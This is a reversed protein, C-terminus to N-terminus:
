KEETNKGISFYDLGLRLVESTSFLNRADFVVPVKLLSKIKSLNPFKFEGWETMVVLGHADKLTEYKEHCVNIKSVFGPKISTMLSMFNKSGEPDYVNIKAGEELLLSAMVITSSERVDDTNAKFSLGWFSFTKGELSGKFYDKLKYFMVKKQRENVRETAKILELDLDNERGTEILARVDKPFCSGGYGPGPYLFHGGIRIDSAMGDRVEEVDAGTMDCLRSIENIFSIKTALFCNSAYKSMEASLNSMKLYKSSSKLLPSFLEKLTEEAFSDELGVIVRDPELFDKVANGERLFEPNNVVAFTKDTVESLVNKVKRHTGVPVTSKIVVIAGERMKKGVSRSAELLYNLNASGDGQSPTGVALFIIKAKEVPDYTSSFNLKKLDRNKKVLEELGPEYIPINGENIFNIKKEDIDICTVDNGIEAFCTGAVLGVYGTGIVCINM